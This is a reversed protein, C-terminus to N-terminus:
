RGGKRDAATVALAASVVGIYLTGEVWMQRNFHAGIWEGWLFHDTSPLIFDTPSASYPRVISLSRDPLGGAQSLQFYPLVALLIFPLATLGMWLFPKWFSWEKWATRRMFVLYFLFLFGAVLGTMFLYYQSTLGILGLGIGGLAASKWLAKSSHRSVGLVEFFGWFFLPFWQTGSLNLHGILFHAFRFPLFAFITGAVLGASIKGTLSRVWLFMFFGSLAFSLLLGANYGFMEGGLFSFPLALSLQAPTIETYALNWGEPYNLFWVNFPNVHLEFLAKKIWGIMWVFYINDGLQGVMRTRMHLILPWTMVATLALFYVPTWFLWARELFGQSGDEKMKGLEDAKLIFKM